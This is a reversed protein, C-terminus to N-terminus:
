TRDLRTTGKTMISSLADLLASPEHHVRITEEPPTSILGETHGHQLFTLLADFYGNVNLLGHPKCQLGLQTWTLTEFFEELTGLGGPLAIFADGRQAMHAKREHMSSVVLLESLGSHAVERQVLFDPMVGIVEGGAQLAADALAGMLGTRGGGYVLTLHRGALQKGLERAASLYSEPVGSSAGCFVTVAKMRKGQRDANAHWVTVM